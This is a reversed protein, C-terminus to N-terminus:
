AYTYERSYHKVTFTTLQAFSQTNSHNCKIEKGQVNYSIILTISVDREKCIYEFTTHTCTYAQLWLSAHSKNDIETLKTPYSLSEKM